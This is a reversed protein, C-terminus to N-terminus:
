GRMAAATKLERRVSESMLFFAVLASDVALREEVLLQLVQAEMEAVEEPQHPEAGDTHLNDRLQHLRLFFEDLRDKRRQRTYRVWGTLITGLGLAVTAILAFVEAYRELLSPADKDIYRRSGSHIALTHVTDEMPADLSDRSLEYATELPQSQEHLIRNLEYALEDDFDPRVVLLTEVAVTKIADATLGPYIGAPLNFVRLNPYLLALAEPSSGSNEDFSFVEYDAFGERAEISLLGGFTFYVQLPGDGAPVWPLDLLRSNVGGINHHDALASFIARSMSNEQGAFITPASLLEDLTPSGMSKHHLVHLVRPLVPMLMNLNSNPTLPEGIIAADVAGGEIAATLEEMSDFERELTTQIGNSELVDVIAEAIARNPHGATNGLVLTKPEVACGALASVLLLAPV